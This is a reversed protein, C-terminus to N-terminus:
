AVEETIRKVKRRDVGFGRAIARPGHGRDHLDCVLRELTPVDPVVLAVYLEAVPAPEPVDVAPVQDVPAVAHRIPWDALTGHQRV